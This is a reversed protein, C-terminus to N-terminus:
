MYSQADWGTYGCEHLRTYGYTFRHIWQCNQTGVPLGVYGCAVEVPLKTYIMRLETYGSTDVHLKTYGVQLETYGSTDVYLRKHRCTFRHIWKYNQTDM